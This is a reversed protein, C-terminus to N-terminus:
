FVPIVDSAPEQVKHRNIHHLAYFLGQVLRSLRKYSRSLRRMVATVKDPRSVPRQIVFSINRTNMESLPQTSGQATTHVSSYTESFDWQGWRCDFGRGEPKQSLACFYLIIYYLIYYLIEYRLDWIEFRLDWIEFRLGWIEFRLDWIEFRACLAYRM